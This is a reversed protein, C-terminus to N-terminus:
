EIVTVIEFFDVGNKIYIVNNYVLVTFDTGPYLRQTNQWARDDIETVYLGDELQLLVLDSSTPYFDYFFIDQQLRNMKIEPRCIRNSDYLLPTTTSMEFRMMEDAIHNGYREAITETDLKPVCYYYPINSVEGIWQAFLENDGIRLQVGGRVVERKTSTSTTASTTTAFTFQGALALPETLVSKRVFAESSTGFLSEVFIYEPNEIFLAKNSSTAFAVPVTSSAFSFVDTTTATKIYVPSGTATVFQTVPRVQPIIPMTFASTEIVIHADVPLDKVWTQLDTRQVVVRHQGVALNQIYYASRLLRPKEVQKEDVFVDVALNGTTIYIGGTPVITQDENTFDLRYGATYFIMLPLLILFTLVLSLFLRKRRTPSLSEIQPTDVM